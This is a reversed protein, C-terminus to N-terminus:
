GKPMESIGHRIVLLMHLGIGAFIFAPFIFVHLVYFRTLTAGGINDGAPLAPAIFPGIVPARAAQEAGVVASWVGNGDWRLLQGTFGMGLTFLLLVLRGVGDM